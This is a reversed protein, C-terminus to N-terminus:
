AANGSPGCIIGDRAGGDVGTTCPRGNYAASGAQRDDRPSDVAGGFEIAARVDGVEQISAGGSRTRLEV